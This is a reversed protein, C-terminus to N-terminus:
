VISLCDYLSLSGYWFFYKELVFKWIHWRNEFANKKMNANYMFLEQQYFTHLEKKGSIFSPKEKKVRSRYINFKLILLLNNFIYDKDIYKGFLITEKKLSINTNLNNNIWNQFDYWYKVIFECEWFLHVISENVKNCFTCKPNDSKGIKVLLLNTCFEILFVFNSGVFNWRKLVNGTSIVYLRGIVKPLM